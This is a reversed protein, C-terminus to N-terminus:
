QKELMEEAHQLTLDTIEVGGIMRALEYKRQEYTLREVQTFTRNDKVTKRILFHTDALAAIQAQHTVCIVHIVNAVSKLKYGVKQAASGGIGSDVEDFILTKVHEEKDAMVNKIALMMRSLEGGSAIKSVPKPDEGPNASILFEIKDCGNETLPTHKLNVFLRANPMDLYTMEERVRQAFVQACKRRKESLHEALVSAQEALRNFETQLKELNVEYAELEELEAHAQQAFQLIDFITAGYKKSLRYIIDLRTEIQALDETPAENQEQLHVLESACDQLEYFMDQLRATLGAAEPIYDQVNRLDSVAEELLSLVGSADGNLLGYADAFSQTIKEKHVIANRKETLLEQEGEVLQASDIEETQYRLLDIQRARQADDTQARDLAQKCTKLSTFVQRYAALDEQLNGFSDIYEQHRQASTLEYSEHQGHLDILNAAIDKLVSVPVPRANIRCINKGNQQIERQLILTGDEELPIGYTEMAARTAEDIKEFVASVFAYQAGTRIIDKSTRRGLVTNIADIVISKGAGTEGTLVNLGMTFDISAKEIVAINEIFLTAIM